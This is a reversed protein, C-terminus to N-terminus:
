RYQWLRAIEHDDDRLIHLYAIGNIIEVKISQFQAKYVHVQNGTEDLRTREELLDYDRLHEIRRYATAPSMGFADVIENVIVPEASTATLIATCYEDVAIDTLEGTAYDHSM